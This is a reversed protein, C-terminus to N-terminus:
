NYNGFTIEQEFPVFKDPNKYEQLFKQQPLTGTMQLVQYVPLLYEFHKQISEFNNDEGTHNEHNRHISFVVIITIRCATCNRVIAFYATQYPLIEEM